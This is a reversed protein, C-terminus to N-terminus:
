GARRVPDHVLQRLEHSRLRLDYTRARGPASDVFVRRDHIGRNESKSLSPADRKGLPQDQGATAHPSGWLVYRRGEIVPPAIRESLMESYEYQVVSGRAGVAWAKSGALVEKM